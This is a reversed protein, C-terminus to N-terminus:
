VTKLFKGSGVPLEGRRMPFASIKPRPHTANRLFAFINVFALKKSKRPVQLAINETSQVVNTCGRSM